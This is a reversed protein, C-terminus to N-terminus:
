AFESQVNLKTSFATTTIIANSTQQQHKIHKWHKLITRTTNSKSDNARNVTMETTAELPSAGKYKKKM